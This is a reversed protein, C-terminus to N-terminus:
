EAATNTEAELAKQAQELTEQLEAQHEQAIKMGIQSGEQFLQPMVNIAKEGVPTKYFEILKKIEDDTFYKRYIGAMDEKMAEWTFYKNTWASIKDQHPMLAPNASTIMTVMQDSMQEMQDKSGVLDMLEYVPEAAQTSLCLTMLSVALLKKM